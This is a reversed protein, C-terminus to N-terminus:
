AVKEKKTLKQIEKKIERWAASPLWWLGVAAALLWTWILATFSNQSDQEWEKKIDNAKKILKEHTGQVDQSYTFDPVVEEILNQAQIKKFSKNWETHWGEGAFALAVIVAVMIKTRKVFADFRARKRQDQVAKWVGAEQARFEQLEKEWQKEQAEKWKAADDDLRFTDTAVNTDPNAELYKTLKEYAFKLEAQREEAKKQEASGAVYKGPSQEDSFYQYAERIDKASATLPLGFVEFYYKLSPDATKKAKVM